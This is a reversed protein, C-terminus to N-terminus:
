GERQDERQFPRVRKVGLKRRQDAVARPMPESRVAIALRPLRAPVLEQRGRQDLGQAHLPLVLLQERDPELLEQRADARALRRRQERRRDDAVAAVALDRMEVAEVEAAGPAPTLKAMGLMGVRM